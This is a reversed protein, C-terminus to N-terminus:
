YIHSKVRVIQDISKQIVVYYLLFILKFNYFSMANGYESAGNDCQCPGATHVPPPTPPNNDMTIKMTHVDSHTFDDNDKFIM